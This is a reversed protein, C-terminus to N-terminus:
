KFLGINLNTKFNLKIRNRGEEFTAYKIIGFITSFAVHRTITVSVMGLGTELEM